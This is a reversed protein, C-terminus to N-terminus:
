STKVKHQCDLVVDVITEFPEDCGGLLYSGEFNGRIGVTGNELLAKGIM